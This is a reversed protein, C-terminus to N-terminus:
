RAATSASAASQPRLVRPPVARDGDNPAARIRLAAALVNYVDRSELKDIVAHRRFAPGNAVFLAQMAPSDPDYGHAGGDLPKKRAALEARTSLIWGDDALCVIAPIRPHTGYRFRRPLSERRWCEFHRHRGVLKAAVEAERAPKPAVAVTTGSVLFALADLDVYRDLKAVRRKSTPIMGHDSVVVINAREALGLRRLGRVLRALARDVEALARDVEGDGPGYDHGVRDLGEFYLTVLAPRRAAPRALWGLVTRVRADYGIREDYNLWDNPQIGQVPAESGVWFMSATVLGQRRATVWIPEGGWWRPDEVAARDHLHFRGIAPDRMTNHVIGHRDPDLGTVLTYHNPFTLTPFAPRMAKARVGDRALRALTPMRDRDLYDVRFGDISILILPDRSPAAVAAAARSPADAHPERASSTAAAALAAFCLLTRLM